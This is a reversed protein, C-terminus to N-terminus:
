TPLLLYTSKNKLKVKTIIAPSDPALICEKITIHKKSPLSIGLFQLNKHKDHFKRYLFFLFFFISYLLFFLLVIM